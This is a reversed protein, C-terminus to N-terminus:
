LGHPSCVVWALAVYIAHQLTHCGGGRNCQMPQQHATHVGLAVLKRWVRGGKLHAMCAGTSCLCAATHWVAKVGHWIPTSCGEVYGWVGQQTSTGCLGGVGHYMFVSCYAEEGTHCIIGAAGCWYPHHTLDRPGGLERAMPEKLRAPWAVGAWGWAASAWPRHPLRTGVSM